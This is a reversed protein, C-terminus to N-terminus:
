SRGIVMTTRYLPAGLGSGTRGAIASIPDTGIPRATIFAAASLHEFEPALIRQDIPDRALFKLIGAYERQLPM